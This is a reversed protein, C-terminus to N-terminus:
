DVIFNDYIATLLEYTKFISKLFTKPKLLDSFDPMIIDIAFGLLREIFSRSHKEILQLGDSPYYNGGSGSAAWRTKDIEQAVRMAEDVQAALEKSQEALKERNSQTINYEHEAVVLLAELRKIGEALADIRHKLEEKQQFKDKRLRLLTNNENTVNTLNRKETTLDGRIKEKYKEYGSGSCEMWLFFSDVSPNCEISEANSFSTATLLILFASINFFKYM